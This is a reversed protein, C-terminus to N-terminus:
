SSIRVYITCARNQNGLAYFGAATTATTCGTAATALAPPFAPSGLIATSIGAYQDVARVFGVNPMGDDLKSDIGYAEEQTMTLGIPGTQLADASDQNLVGAANSFGSRIGLMFYTFGDASLAILGTGVPLSPIESNADVTGGATAIYTNKMLNANTLMIFFNAIEGSYTTAATMAVAADSELAGDGDGNGTPVVGAEATNFTQNCENGSAALPCVGFNAANAMDGPIQNAYKAKFTNVAADYQSLTAMVNRVQAQKILEQGQLVGGVLLGIIVLVIALEVLTFGKKNM